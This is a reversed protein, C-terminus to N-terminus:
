PVHLCAALDRGLPMLGYFSEPPYGDSIRRGVLDLTLLHKLNLSLARPTVPVLAARLASFRVASPDLCGIIPLSWRPLGSPEIGAGALVVDMRACSGALRWGKDTLVYDPRLPHGYGPNREVWGQETAHAITQTLTDRAIGLATLLEVFRAGDRRALEALLCAAWRAQGLARLSDRDIM